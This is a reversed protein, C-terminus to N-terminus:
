IEWMFKGFFFYLLFYINLPDVCLNGDTKNYAHASLRGGRVRFWKGGDMTSGCGRVVGM